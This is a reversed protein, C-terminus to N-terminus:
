RREAGMSCGDRETLRIPVTSAVAPSVVPEPIRWRHLHHEIVDARTM